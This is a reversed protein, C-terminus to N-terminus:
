EGEHEIFCKDPDADPDDLFMWYHHDVAEVIMAVTCNFAKSAALVSVKEDQMCAWVQLASSFLDIGPTGSDWADHEPGFKEYM